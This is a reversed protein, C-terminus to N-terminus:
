NCQREAWTSLKLLPLVPLSNWSRSLGCPFFSSTLVGKKFHLDFQRTSSYSVEGERVGEWSKMMSLSFGSAKWSGSTSGSRVDLSREGRGRLYCGRVICSGWQGRETGWQSEGVKPSHAWSNKSCQMEVAVCNEMTPEKVDWPTWNTESTEAALVEGSKGTQGGNRGLDNCRGGAVIM